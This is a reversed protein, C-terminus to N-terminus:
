CGSVHGCSSSSNGARLREQEQNGAQRDESPSFPPQSRNQQGVSPSELQSSAPQAAAASPLRPDISIRSYDKNFCVIPHMGLDM